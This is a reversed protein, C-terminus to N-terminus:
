IVRKQQFILTEIIKQFVRAQPSVLATFIFVKQGFISVVEFRFHMKQGFTQKVYFFRRYM